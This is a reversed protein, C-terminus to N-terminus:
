FFDAEVQRTNILNIVGNPNFQFRDMTPSINRLVMSDLGVSIITYSSGFYWLQDGVKFKNDEADLNFELTIDAALVPKIDISKVKVEM